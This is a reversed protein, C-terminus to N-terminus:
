KSKGSTSSGGAGGEMKDAIESTDLKESGDGKESREKESREEGEALESRESRADADGESKEKRESHDPDMSSTGPKDWKAIAEHEAICTTINSTWAKLDEEDKAHFAFNNGNTMQLIFVNKKKKYGMSPDFSCNSLDVPPEENYTTTHNRADKYFTLQGEKLVCYVNVWSKSNPSRQQAELDSTTAKKRYLFGENHATHSPPQPTTPAGTAPASRSRRTEEPEKPRPRRRPKPRDRARPRGDFRTVPASLSSPPRYPEGRAHAAEREQVQEVIEAMTQQRKDGSRKDSGEKVSGELDSSDQRQLRQKSSGEQESSSQRELRRRYREQRVILPLENLRAQIEQESSTQRGLKYERERRLHDMQPDSRSGRPDRQLRGHLLELGSEPGVMDAMPIDGFQERQVRSAELLPNVAKHIHNIRPQMFDAKLHQWAYAMKPDMIGGSQALYGSSGLSGSSYHNQALFGSSGLGGSSQYNQALYGSSVMSPQQALYGSSGMNPQQALYGTSGLNPQHGLYGSSGMNQPQALYGSSGFNQQPLFGPSGMGGSSPQQALNGSSGLRSSGLHNQTVGVCGTTLGFYGSSEASGATQHNIGLYTSTDAGGSQSTLASFGSDSGGGAVQHNMGLYPSSVLKGSPQQELGHYGSGNIVPNYSALTSSLRQTTPSAGLDLSTQLPKPEIHAQVSQRLFSSTTSTSPVSPTLCSLPFMRRSSLPTTKKEEEKKKEAASLQRLSSFREKWTVAAKRFAEHRLILQEVEDTQAPAQGGEPEKSTILPEKAKLWAEAKVTEQAFRFREQKCQLKEQHKDWKDILDKQKALLSDLKEKIEESAPNGAAILIKGLDACQQITKSRGDVKAKLEQHQKIMGELATLDRPEDWGIQGMIGEMWMLNERVVSFFQVKDTVSTVQVRSAECASLLGRWAEMVEQEKVMIAEAKEGAYITRLQAANEQLQRVQAVLLQLAHEFSHMLRQLTAPNTINAQCARVEPLQKMKGAIQALVEKCDTFFKHLQHSAALMQRRTEMLELLDAWSENLGDKWEAITAADSHGCDIMENVMKNVQEMRQQGISNTESAFKTFREQLVTVDELDQGLETSSAVTERETIWKELEEVEKNLQYLWYQQELKTKRHEVMDKLSVYLRDIHSQQKTIQESEPHGLELLRQCQQSLMGVTEAYTEVTQELALHAKLLQLTSVEDTGKEENVLHLKQGSLWSEVKAAESYYQQAQLTADLMVCRRETELQLVEWLQRVHGAGERVFEVEPTRLSAIIGARDLVEEVRAQRGTLERQLTQNKKVHQQVSQLNNGYDKCSALPLREQIWLIEDELDQAVQHMEKSALLIRRREKLPEILRVIRTEVGGSQEGGERDDGMLGQQPLCVGQLSGLDGVDKYFDGIQSEMAQFKQLQENFTPLHHAQELQPPQQELHSLQNDLDSYSKVAPEPKNNEFLQRAKAKTTSELDSWCERIEELKQQVVSRLEPKEQILEQGEQEIKALWEKNRALEAMFAQHKLWKRHLKQAEDRATDRAMLM